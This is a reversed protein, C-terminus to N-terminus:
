RRAGTVTTLNVNLQRELLRGSELTGGKNLRSASEVLEARKFRGLLRTAEFV